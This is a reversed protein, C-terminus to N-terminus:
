RPKSAGLPAPLPPVTKGGVARERNRRAVAERHAEAQRQRLEYKERNRQEVASRDGRVGPASSRKTTVEDPPPNAAPEAFYPERRVRIKPTEPLADSARSQQAQANEAITKRRAEAAAQRKAEDLRIEQDRLGKVTSRHAKRADDVCDAVIFRAACGREQALLRANATAREAAIRDHEADALAGGSAVSLLMLCVCCLKM